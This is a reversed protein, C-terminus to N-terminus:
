SRPLVRRLGPSTHIACPSFFASPRGCPFRPLVRPIIPWRPWSVDRKVCGRPMPLMSSCGEGLLSASPSVTGGGDIISGCASITHLYAGVSCGSWGNGIIRAGCCRRATNRPTRNATACAVSSLRNLQRWSLRPERYCLGRSGAVRLAQWTLPFVTPFTSLSSRRSSVPGLHPDSQRVFAFVRM